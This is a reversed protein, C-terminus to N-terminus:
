RATPHAHSNDCAEGLPINKNGTPCVEASRLKMREREKGKDTHIYIYIIYLIYIYYLHCAHGPDYLVYKSFFEFLSSAIQYADIKTAHQAYAHTSPHKPIRSKHRSPVIAINKSTM